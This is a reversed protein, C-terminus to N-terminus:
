LNERRFVRERAQHLAQEQTIPPGDKYISIARRLKYLRTGHKADRSKKRDKLSHAKIIKKASRFRKIENERSKLIERAMRGIIKSKSKVIKQTEKYTAYDVGHMKRLPENSQPLRAKMRPKIGKNRLSQMRKEKSPIFDGRLNKWTEPSRINSQVDSVGIESPFAQPVPAVARSGLPASPDIGPVNGRFKTGAM